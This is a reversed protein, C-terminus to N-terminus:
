QSCIAIVKQCQEKNFMGIHCAKREIGLQGSLWHYAEQRKMQRSKWIKDFADHAQIRAQRTEKNAPIGLPEGTGQHAGHTEKCKPFASCGYFKGFRSDRLTMLSGCKPCLLRKM